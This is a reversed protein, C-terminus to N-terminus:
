IAYGLENLIPRLVDKQTETFLFNDKYDNWNRQNNKLANAFADISHKFTPLEKPQESVEKIPIDITNNQVQWNESEDYTGAFVGQYAMRLCQSEAVKCIMTAPIDQWIKTTKKYESFLVEVTFPINCNKKWLSCYAGVLEGRNKLSTKHTVQGNTKEYIDNAYIPSAIHVLYDPQEQAVRRYLDRGCFVSLQPLDNQKTDKNWAMYKIAYIEKKFPNANLSKALSIFYDFEIQTLTPAFLQKIEAAKSDLIAINNEM